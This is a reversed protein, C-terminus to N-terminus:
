KKLDFIKSVKNHNLNTNQNISKFYNKMSNISDFDIVQCIILFNNKCKKLAEVRHQGDLLYYDEKDGVILHAITIVCCALFHHNYKNDDSYRAKMEEVKDSNLTTQFLPHKILHNIEKLEISSIAVLKANDTYKHLSGRGFLLKLTKIHEAEM